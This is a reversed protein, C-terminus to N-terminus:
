RPQGSYKNADLFLTGQDALELLGIEQSVAGTFAEKEHGFLESELLGTAISTCNIKVFRREKRRSHACVARAILEKGTGTEGEILVTSDIPGVIRVLNLAELLAPSQGVIEDFGELGSAYQVERFDMVNPNAGPVDRPEFLRVPFSDLLTKFVRCFDEGTASPSTKRGPM